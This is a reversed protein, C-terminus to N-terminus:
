PRAIKGEFLLLSSQTDPSLLASTGRGPLLNRWLVRLSSPALGPAALPEEPVPGWPVHSGVAGGAHPLWSRAGSPPRVQIKPCTPGLEEGCGWM